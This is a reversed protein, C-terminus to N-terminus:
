NAGEVPRAHGKWLCNSWNRKPGLGGCHPCVEQGAANFEVITVDACSCGAVAALGKALISVMLSKGEGRHGGTAALLRNRISAIRESGRYAILWVGEEKLTLVEESM